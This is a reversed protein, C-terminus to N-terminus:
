QVDGRRQENKRIWEYTKQIGEEFPVQAQFGTDRQTLTCDFVSLPLNVGTYPVDGLNFSCDPAILKKIEFLYEWLPRAKSSGILYSCFPKGKQGILYLAKVTDTIYVFDYNQLASTFKLPEGRVIKRLTSNILRQSNEGPGYTNTLKVWILDIGIDVAVSKCMAHAALKGCGYIYGMEPRNGQQYLIALVEDEMISGSCIIRKCGIQKAVDLCNITWRINNLQTDVHSRESGSVGAWALHYFVDADRVKPSSIISFINQLDCQIFEVKEPLQRSSPDRGIAVVEVGRSLLERVLASGVFGNAGTVIAKKM